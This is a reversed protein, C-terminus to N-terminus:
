FYCFLFLFHGFVNSRERRPSVNEECLWSGEEEHVHAVYQMVREFPEIDVVGVFM